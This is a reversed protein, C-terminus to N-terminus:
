RSNGSRDTGSPRPIGGAPFRRRKPGPKAEAKAAQEGESFVEATYAFVTVQKPDRWANAPLGAKNACCHSLFEEKTKFNRGVQPLYTGGKLGDVSQLLIGDRGLEISLPDDLKKPDSLVSIEIEIAPLEDKTVNGLGQRPDRFAATRAREIVVKWVPETRAFTGMCGRLRGKNTLTVFAAAKRALAPPLGAIAPMDKGKFALAVSKRALALLM